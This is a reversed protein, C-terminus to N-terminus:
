FEICAELLTAFCIYAHKFIKREQNTSLLIQSSPCMKNSSFCKGLTELFKSFLTFKAFIMAIYRVITKEELNGFHRPLSCVFGHPPIVVLQFNHSPYASTAVM